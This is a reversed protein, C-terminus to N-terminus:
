IRPGSVRAYQYDLFIAGLKVGLKRAHIFTATQLVEPVGYMELLFESKSSFIARAIGLADARQSHQLSLAILAPTKNETTLAMSTKRQAADHREFLFKYRDSYHVSSFAAGIFKHTYSRELLRYRFLERHQLFLLECSNRKVIRMCEGHIFAHLVHEPHDSFMPIYLFASDPKQYLALDLKGTEKWQDGKSALTDLMIFSDMSVDATIQIDDSLNGYEGIFARATAEDRFFGNFDDIYRRAFTMSGRFRGWLERETVHLYIEACTRGCALGTPFGKVAKFIRSAFHCYSENLIVEIMDHFLKLSDSDMDVTPDLATIREQLFQCMYAVCKEINISPYLRVVDATAFVDTPKVTTVM